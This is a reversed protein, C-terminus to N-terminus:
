ASPIVRRAASLTAAGLAAKVASGILFPTLGAAIAKEWGTYQALWPIGGAFIVGHGLMMMLFAGFATRCLRFRMAWGVIFAAVPFVILYGGTPGALRAFGYPPGAFVPLGMLGEILYLVVSMTGLTPGLVAGVLLVAWSQMTMPVPHMPVSIWSSAAILLSGALIAAAKSATSRTFRSLPLHPSFAPVNM